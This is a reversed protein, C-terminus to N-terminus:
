RPLSRTAVATATESAPTPWSQSGITLMFIILFVAVIAFACGECGSNSSRNM